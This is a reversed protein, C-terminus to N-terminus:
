VTKTLYTYWRPDRSGSLAKRLDAHGCDFLGFVTPGSGSMMSGLAGLSKLKDKAQQIVPYRPVTVDELVNKMNKALIGINKEAIASLILETDPRSIVKNLDLNKYVWSTSVGVKPKLLIVDFGGFPNLRTLKDGIGEALMTGGVICYPVDAGLSKGMEMLEEQTLGIDFMTNIGKLVAAADASGGALGAAVPIRKEITIRIGNKIGCQEMILAAAKYALNDPGSPLWKLGPELYILNDETKELTIKDHLALTQMVMKLDHYGDDRRKLVDLSLNIKAHAKLVLKDL